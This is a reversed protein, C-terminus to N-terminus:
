KAKLVELLHTLSEATKQYKSYIVVMRERTVYHPAYSPGSVPSGLSMYSQSLRKYFTKMVSLAKEAQAPTM